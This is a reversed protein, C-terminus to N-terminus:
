LVDRLGGRNVVRTFGLNELISKARESRRGTRCYLDIPDHQFANTLSGLRGTEMDELPTNLAGPAHLEAFEEPTRVDILWKM